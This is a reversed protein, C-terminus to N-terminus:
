IQTGSTREGSNTASACRCDSATAYRNANANLHSQILQVGGNRLWNAADKADLAHVHLHVEGGGGGSNGGLGSGSGRSIDAGRSLASITGGHRMNTMKDVMREGLEAHIFGSNPGTSFDGFHRIVGGSDYQAAQMGIAGSRDTDQQRQMEAIAVNIEPLITNKYVAMAGSGWKKIQVLAQMQLMEMDQMGQDYGVEAATYATMEKSITPVVTGWNYVRALSAGKNGLESGILGVLAGVAAGIGMGIPGFNSGIQMGTMAGQGVAAGTHGEKWDQMMSMTGAAAAGSMGAIQMGSMGFGSGSSAGSPPTGPVGADNTPAIDTPQFGGAVGPVGNPNLLPAAGTGGTMFGQVGSGFVGGSALTGFLSTAQGIAGATSGGIASTLGPAAGMAGAAGTGGTMPNQTGSGFAGGGSGLTSQSISGGAVGGLLAAMGPPVGMVGTSGSPAPNIDSPQFGGGMAGGGGFM